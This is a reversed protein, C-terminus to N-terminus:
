AKSPLRCILGGGGFATPSQALKSQPGFLLPCWRLRLLHSFAAALRHLLEKGPVFHGGGEACTRGELCVLLCINQLQFSWAQSPM